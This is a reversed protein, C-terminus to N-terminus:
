NGFGSLNVTSQNIIIFSVTVTGKDLSYGSFNVGSSITSASVLGSCLVVFVILVVLYKM